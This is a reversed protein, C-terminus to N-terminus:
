EETPFPRALGLEAQHVTAPFDGFLSPSVRGEPPEAALQASPTSLDQTITIGTKLAAAQHRTIPRGNLTLDPERSLSAAQVAMASMLGIIAALTMLRRM